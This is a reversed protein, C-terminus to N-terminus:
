TGLHVTMYRTGLFGSKCALLFGLEAVLYCVPLPIFVPNPPLIPLSYGTLLPFCLQLSCLLATILMVM